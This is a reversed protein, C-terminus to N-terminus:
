GLMSEIDFQPHFHVCGHTFNNSFPIHSIVKRVSSLRFMMNNVGYQYLFCGPNPEGFNEMMFNRYFNFESFPIELVLRSSSDKIYDLILKDMFPVKSFFGHQIIGECIPNIKPTGNVTAIYPPIKSYAV